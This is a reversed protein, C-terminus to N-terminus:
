DSKDKLLGGREERSAGFRTGSCLAAGGSRRLQEDIPGTLSGPDPKGTCSGIVHSSVPADSSRGVFRTEVSSSVM